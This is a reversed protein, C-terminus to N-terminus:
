TLRYRGPLLEAMKAWKNGLRQHMDIVISDEEDTWPGKKM